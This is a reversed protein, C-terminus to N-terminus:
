SKEQMLQLLPSGSVRWIDEALSQNNLHAFSQPESGERMLIDKIDYNLIICFGNDPMEKLAQLYTEELRLKAGLVKGEVELNIELKPSAGVGVFQLIGTMSETLIEKPAFINSIVITPRSEPERARSIAEIRRSMGRLEDTLLAGPEGLSSEIELSNLRSILERDPTPISRSENISRMVEGHKFILM